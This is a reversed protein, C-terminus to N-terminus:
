PGGRERAKAASQFAASPLIGPLAAAPMGDIVELEVPARGTLRATEAALRARGGAAATPDGALFAAALFGAAAALAAAATVRRLLRIRLPAAAGCEARIRARLAAVLAPPMPLRPWGAFLPRLWGEVRALAPDAPSSEDAPDARLRELIVEFRLAGEGEAPATLRPLARMLDAQAAYAAALSRCRACRELHAEREREACADSSDRARPAEAGSGNQTPLLETPEPCSKPDRRELDV